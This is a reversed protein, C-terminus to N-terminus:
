EEELMCDIDEGIFSDLVNCVKKNFVETYKELFDYLTCITKSDWEIACEDTALELDGFEEDKIKLMQTDHVLDDIFEQIDICADNEFFAKVAMLTKKNAKMFDGKM